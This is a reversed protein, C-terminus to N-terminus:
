KKLLEYSIQNLTQHACRFVIEKGLFRLDTKPQGFTEFEILREHLSRAAASCRQAAEGQGGRCILNQFFNDHRITGDSHTYASAVHTKGNAKYTLSVLGPVFDLTFDGYTAFVLRNLGRAPKDTSSFDFRTMGLNVIGPCNVDYPPALELRRIAKVQQYGAGLAYSKVLRQFVAVEDRNKLRKFEKSAMDIDMQTAIDTHAEECYETQDYCNIYMNLGSMGRVTQPSLVTHGGGFDGYGVSSDSYVWDALDLSRTVKSYTEEKLGKSPNAAYNRIFTFGGDAEEYLYWVQEGVKAKSVLRSEAFAPVALLWGTLIMTLIKTM